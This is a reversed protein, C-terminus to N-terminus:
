RVSVSTFPRRSVLLLIFLDGDEEGGNMRIKSVRRDEEEEESLM